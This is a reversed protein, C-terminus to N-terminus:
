GTRWDLRPVLFLLRAYGRAEAAYVHNVMLSLLTSGMTPKSQLGSDDFKGVRAANSTQIAHFLKHYMQYQVSGILVPHLGCPVSFV